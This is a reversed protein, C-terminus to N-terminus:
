SGNREAKNDNINLDVEYKKNEVTGLHYDKITGEAWFWDGLTYNTGHIKNFAKIEYHNSILEMGVVIGGVFLVFAFIVLFTGMGKAWEKYNGDSDRLWTEKRTYKDEHWM